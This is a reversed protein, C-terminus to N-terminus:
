VTVRHWLSNLDHRYLNVTTLSSQAGKSSGGTARKKSASAHGVSRRMQRFASPGETAGGTDQDYGPDGKEPEDDSEDHACYVDFSEKRKRRIKHVLKKMIHIMRILMCSVMMVNDESITCQLQEGVEEVSFTELVPFMLYREGDNYSRDVFAWRRGSVLVSPFLRPEVGVRSKYREALGKDEALIEGQEQPTICTMNLNKVEVNGIPADGVSIVQDTEGKIPVIGKGTYLLTDYSIWAVGGTAKEYFQAYVDPLLHTILKRMLAFTPQHIYMEENVKRQQANDVMGQTYNLVEQYVFRCHDSFRDISKVYDPLEATPLTNKNFCEVETIELNSGVKTKLKRVHPAIMEKLEAFAEMVGSTIFTPFFRSVILVSKVLVSPSSNSIVSLLLLILSVSLVQLFHVM